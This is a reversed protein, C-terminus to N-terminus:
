KIENILPRYNVYSSDHIITHTGISKRQDGSTVRFFLSFNLIYFFFFYIFCTDRSQHYHFIQQKM